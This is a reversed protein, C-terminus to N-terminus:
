RTVFVVRSVKLEHGVQARLFYVGAAVRGGGDATGDWRVTYEGPSRTGADLRKVLRGSISYIGLDVAQEQDAIRYSYSMSGAFPNPYPRHFQIGSAAAEPVVSEVGTVLEDVVKATVAPSSGDLDPLEVCFDEPVPDVRIVLDWQSTDSGSEPLTGPPIVDLVTFFFLGLRAGQLNGNTPGYNMSIDSDYVVAVFSHGELLQLEPTQLPNVDRIKDLQSQPVTGAVFDELSWPTDPPLAFVGEDFLQGSPLTVIGGPCLTNWRFPLNGVERPRDDNILRDPQLSCDDAADEISHIDNDITEEDLILVGLCRQCENCLVSVSAEASDSGCDNSATATVTFVVAQGVTCEPMPFTFAFGVTAGAAVDNFSQASQGPLQVSIDASETSCNTATGSITIEEGPCASTPGVATVQACPAARCEVTVTESDTAAPDCAGTATATVTYTRPGSVCTLNGAPISFNSVGGAPVTGLDQSVGGQVAVVITEPDESCNRVSGTITVPTGECQPALPIVTLEVCPLDRCTVDFLATRMVSLPGKGGAELCAETFTGVATATNRVVGFCSESALARFSATRTAGPPIVLPTFTILGGVHSQFTFDGSVNNDFTLGAPLQDTLTTTLPAEGTNQVAITFITTQGPCVTAPNASKTIDLDIDPPGCRVSPTADESLGDTTSGSFASMGFVFPLALNEIRGEIDAGNFAVTKPGSAAGLVDLVLNNGGDLNTRILIDSKGNCDIDLGWAYSEQFGVAAPDQIRQEGPNLPPTCGIGANPTGDGDSDGVIGAVRIGVYLTQNARDYAVVVRTLDFGNQFYTGGGVLCAVQPATCPILLANTKCLDGPRPRVDPTLSETDLCSQGTAAAYDILDGINGDVIPPAGGFGGSSITGPAPDQGLNAPVRALAPSALALGLCFLALAGSLARWPSTRCARRARTSSPLNTM